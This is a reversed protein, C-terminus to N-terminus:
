AMEHDRGLLPLGKQIIKLLREVREVHGLRLLCLQKRDYFACSCGNDNCRQLLVRLSRTVSVSSVRSTEEPRSLPTPRGLPPSGTLKESVGDSQEHSRQVVCTRAECAQFSTNVIDSLVCM